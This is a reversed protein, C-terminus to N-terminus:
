VVVAIIVSILDKNRTQPESLGPCLEWTEFAPSRCTVTGYKIGLCFSAMTHKMIELPLDLYIVLM